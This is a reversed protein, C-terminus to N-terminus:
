GKELSMKNKFLKKIFLENIFNTVDFGKGCLGSNYHQKGKTPFPTFAPLMKEKNWLTKLKTFSLYVCVDHCTSNKLRKRHTTKLYKQSSQFKTRLM